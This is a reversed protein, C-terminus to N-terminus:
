FLVITLAIVIVLANAYKLGALVNGEILRGVLLSNGVALILVSHFLVLELQSVLQPPAEGLGFPLDGPLDVLLPFFLQEFVVVVLLYALIGIVLLFAYPRLAQQRDIYQQLRGESDNAMVSLVSGYKPTAKLAEVTTHIIRDVQPILIADAFRYLAAQVDGTLRIDTKLRHFEEGLRGSQRRTVLDLADVFRVGNESAAAIVRLAGPFRRHLADYRRRDFEYALMLGTSPILAPIGVGFITARIPTATAAALVGSDVSWLVGVVVLAAPVTVLLTTVPQRKLHLPLRTLERRFSQRRKHRRYQGYLGPADPAHLWEPIVPLALGPGTEFPQGARLVLLYAGIITAPLIGYVIAYIALLVTAGTFSLITLSVLTFIAGAFVVTFYIEAWTAVRDIFAEQRRRARRLQEQSAQELFREINGGAETTTLLEEFFSALPDSPTRAKADQIATAFDVNLRSVEIAVTRFEESVPGYIDEAEGIRRFIDVLRVNGGSLAYMFVLAQPLGRNIRRRRRNARLVPRLYQVSILGAIAIATTMATTLVIASMALVPPGVVSVPGRGILIAAMALQVGFVLVGTVVAIRTTHALYTEAAVVMRAQDLRQQLREDRNIIRDLAAYVPGFLWPVRTFPLDDPRHRDPPADPDDGLPRDSTAPASRADREPM